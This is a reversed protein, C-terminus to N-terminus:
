LRQWKHLSLYIVAIQDFLQMLFVSVDRLLFFLNVPYPTLMELRQSFSVM